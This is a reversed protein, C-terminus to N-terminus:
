ASSIRSASRRTRAVHGAADGDAAPRRGARRAAGHVRWRRACSMCSGSSRKTRHATRSRRPWTRRRRACGGSPTRCIRRGRTAARCALAPRRREQPRGAHYRANLRWYPRAFASIPTGILSSVKPSSRLPTSRACVVQARNRPDEVLYRRQEVIAKAIPNDFRRQPLIFEFPESKGIQGAQDKATLTLRVRMGAWPHGALEHYSAAEAQKANARPLRLALVAPRELPPRPGKKAEPKAWSRAPDEARPKARTIRGEASVVGYDDEIKYSLKLAGRPMREPDKTLAIKPPHDPIIKFQWPKIGSVGSVSVSGSSRLDYRIEAIESQGPASTPVLTQQPPKAEIKEPAKGESTVELALRAAGPGSARIILVSRDPVEHVQNSSEANAASVSHSGDALMLPARGTYAPPTVWADFRMDAGPLSAGLRFAARLRDAANDGVMVTLVSVGILLLARFALPDFRDTRPTPHGVRLRALLAALRSRHATWLAATAPDSGPSTLTDEYSSAPRHPVASRREIRRLAEDRGVGPTRVLWILLGLAVTAFGGLVIKHELDGLAPWLGALSVLVFLLALGMLAWLRPWLKEFQLAWRSLRVKREFSVELRSRPSRADTTM